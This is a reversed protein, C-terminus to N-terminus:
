TAGTDAPEGAPAPCGPLVIEFRSGRGPGDSHASVKGGHAEVISHVIALGLGLSGSRRNVGTHHVQYFPEFVRELVQPSMGAGRDQVQVHVEGGHEDVTVTIPQAGGYRVANTLVNTFVQALRSPDGLAWAHPAQPHFDVHVGQAAEAQRLDELVDALVQVVDVETRRIELKGRTIRAVDLLDDVLRRMHDLQRRLITRERETRADSRADLLWLASVMPALPNRLEHGLIALFEDKSRGAAHAAQLATQQAANAEVLRQGAEGLAKGLRDIEAIDSRVTPVAQGAGLQTAADGAQAIDQAIRRSLRLALVACILLSGGIGGFFLALAPTFFSALPTTPAGVAIMWDFDPTRNFGTVVRRGEQNTSVGHGEAAGSSALQLLAGTARRLAFEEQNRSRAFIQREADLIAIVWGDPVRQRKLMAVMRDPVLNASLVFRIENDVVVPFRVSAVLRGSPDRRAMGVAPSRRELVRDLSEPDLVPYLAAGGGPADTRLLPQGRADLLALAAWHPQLAVADRAREAFSELDNSMLDPSRSLNDLAVLTVDFESQVANAVARSLDLTSRKLETRHAQAAYFLALAALVALPVLGLLSLWTLQQRLTRPRRPSMRPDTM